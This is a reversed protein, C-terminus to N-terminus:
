LSTTFLVTEKIRSIADDLNDTNFESWEKGDSSMEFFAYTEDYEDGVVEVSILQNAVYWEVTIGGDEQPFIGPRKAGYEADDPFLASLLNEVAQTAEPRSRKGYGDLWGDELNSLYQLRETWARSM